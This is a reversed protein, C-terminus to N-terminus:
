DSDKNLPLEEPQVTYYLMIVWCLMFPYLLTCLLISGMIGLSIGLWMGIVEKIVLICIPIIIFVIALVYGISTTGFYFGSEDKELEMECGPCNKHLRFWNKFIGFSGCNPCRGTLSRGFIEAREVKM